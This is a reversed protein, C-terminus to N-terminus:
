IDWHARGSVRARVKGRTRRVDSRVVSYTKCGNRRNEEPFVNAKRERERERARTSTHTHKGRLWDRRCVFNVVTDVADPQCAFRVQTIHITSLDFGRTGSEESQWTYLIIYLEPTQLEAYRTNLNLSQFIWLARSSRVFATKFRPPM